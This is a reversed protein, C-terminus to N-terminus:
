ADPFSTDDVADTTISGCAVLTEYQIRGARGGTGVTKKIWGAHAGKSERSSGIGLSAVATAAGNTLTLKHATGAGVATLDMQTNSTANGASSALAVANAGIKIVYYTALDTLGTIVTGGAGKNYIAADGTEFLHGTYAITNASVSIASNSSGDFTIFPSGITVAPAASYSNGTATLSVNAVAGNRIVATAAASGSDFTVAPVEKYKSGGSVVAVSVVNASGADIEAVDVGYVRQITDYGSEADGDQYAYKPQQNETVFSMPLTTNSTGLFPDALTLTTNNAIAAVRNKTYIDSHIGIVDGISLNATFQTGVGDVTTSGNTVSVSTGYITKADFNGWGSM